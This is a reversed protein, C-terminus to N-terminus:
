WKLALGDGLDVLVSRHLWRNGAECSTESAFARIVPCTSRTSAPYRTMSTRSRCSHSAPCMGPAVSIGSPVSAYRMPTSAGYWAM